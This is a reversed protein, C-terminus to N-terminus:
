RDSWRAANARVRVHAPDSAVRVVELAHHAMGMPTLPNFFAEMMAAQCTSWVAVAGDFGATLKESVADHWEAYGAASPRTLHEALIPMRHAITVVSNTAAEGCALTADTLAQTLQRTM